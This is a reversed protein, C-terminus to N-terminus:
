FEDINEIRLLQNMDEINLAEAIRELHVFSVNQRKQNKLESLVAHRVDSRRSLERMSIGEKELLEEIRVTIKKSM